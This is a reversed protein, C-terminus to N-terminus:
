YRVMCQLSEVVDDLVAVLEAAMLPPIDTTWRVEQLAITHIWARLICSHVEAKDM